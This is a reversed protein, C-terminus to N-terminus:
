KETDDEKVVPLGLMEAVIPMFKIHKTFPQVEVEPNDKPKGWGLPFDVHATGALARLTEIGGEWIQPINIFKSRRIKIELGVSDPRHVQFPNYFSSRYISLNEEHQINRKHVENLRYDKIYDGVKLGAEVRLRQRASNFYQQLEFKRAGLHDREALSEMHKYFNAPGLQHQQMWQHARRVQLKLSRHKQTVRVYEDIIDELSMKDLPEFAEFLM